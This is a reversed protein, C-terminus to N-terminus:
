RGDSDTACQWVRPSNAISQEAENSGSCFTSVQGAETSEPDRRMRRATHMDSPRWMKSDSVIRTYLPLNNPKPRDDSHAAVKATSSRLAILDFITDGESAALSEQPTPEDVQAARHDCVYRLLRKVNQGRVEVVIGPFELRFGKQEDDSEIELMQAYPFGKIKGDHFRVVFTM